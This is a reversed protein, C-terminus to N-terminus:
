ETLSDCAIMVLMKTVHLIELVRRLDAKTTRDANALDVDVAEIEAQRREYNRRERYIWCWDTRGM